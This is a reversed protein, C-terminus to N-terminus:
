SRVSFHVHMKQSEIKRCPCASERVRPRRAICACGRKVACRAPTPGASPASRRRVKAAGRRPRKQDPPHAGAAPHHCLTRTRRARVDSDGPRGRLRPQRHRVPGRQTKWQINHPRKVSNVAGRAATVSRSTPVSRRAASVANRHRSSAYREPDVERGGETGVMRWPLNLDHEISWRWNNPREPSM